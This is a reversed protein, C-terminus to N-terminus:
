TEPEEEPQTQPTVEDTVAYAAGTPASVRTLGIEGTLWILEGKENRYEDRFTLYAYSQGSPHIIRSIVRRKLGLPKKQGSVTVTQGAKWETTDLTIGTQSQAQPDTIFGTFRHVQAVNECFSGLANRKSLENAVADIDLTVVIPNEATPKEPRKIIIYSGATFYNVFRALANLFAASIRFVSDNGSWDDKIKGM